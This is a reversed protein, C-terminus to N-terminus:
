EQTDLYFYYTDDSYVSFTLMAFNKHQNLYALSSEINPSIWHYRYGEISGHHSLIYTPGFSLRDKRFFIRHPGFPIIDSHETRSFKQYVADQHLPRCTKKGFLTETDEQELSRKM